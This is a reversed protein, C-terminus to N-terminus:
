KGGVPEAAVAPSAPLHLLAASSDIGLLQMPAPKPAPSATPPSAPSTTPSPAHLKLLQFHLVAFKSWDDLTSHASFSAHNWAHDAHGPQAVGDENHGVTGPPPGFGLTSMCLPVAIRTLVLVEWPTHMLSEIVHSLLAYGANSYCFMSGPPHLLPKTKLENVFARRQVIPPENGVSKSLLAEEDTSLDVILGSRHHVLQLLTISSVPTDQLHAVVTGLKATWGGPVHGGDVLQAVLTATLAKTCSGWHWIIKEGVPCSNLSAHDFHTTPQQAVMKQTDTEEHLEGQPLPAAFYSGEFPAEEQHQIWWGM